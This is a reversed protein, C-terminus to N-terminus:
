VSRKKNWKIWEDYASKNYRIMEQLAKKLIERKEDVGLNPKNYNERDTDSMFARPSPKPELLSLVEDETVAIDENRPNSKYTGMDLKSLEKKIEATEESSIPELVVPEPQKLVKVASERLQKQKLKPKEGLKESIHRNLFGNISDGENTLVTKLRSKFGKPVRILISDYTEKNYESIKQIRSM